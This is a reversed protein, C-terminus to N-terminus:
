RRPQQTPKANDDPTTVRAKQQKHAACLPCGTGRWTVAQEHHDRCRYPASTTAPPVDAATQQWYGNCAYCRVWTIGLGNTRVYTNAGPCDFKHDSM